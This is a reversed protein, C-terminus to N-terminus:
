EESSSRNAILARLMDGHADEDRLWDYFYRGPFEDPIVGPALGSALVIDSACDGVIDSWEEDIKWKDDVGYPM